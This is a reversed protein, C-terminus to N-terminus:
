LPQNDLAHGSARAAGFAELSFQNRYVTSSTRDALRRDKNSNALNSVCIVRVVYTLGRPYDTRGGQYDPLVGVNRMYWSM